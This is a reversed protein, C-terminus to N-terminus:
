RAFGNIRDRSGAIDASWDKDSDVVTPKLLIVLERKETHKSTQGFISKPLGPLGSDDNVEAQRMLGGIAVIQGDRARVISDTESVSSSALPLNFINSVGNSTGLDVTKNVTTVTSVSPHVHLIIENNEDIVPTVDLAIGSFFPQVKVTPSTGAIATTAQTGGTVETVFFEDTGVKLVAKQNNLTAIRPSSLVHVNGQTELFNLLAAFNSTQFALGFLSGAVASSPLLSTATPLLSAGPTSTLATNALTSAVAGGPSLTSGPSGIGATVHSNPGNKFVGWNVGSQFSDNLQVEVIKAELIVQRDISIQSAKLYAAVNKLEDPMARIVIVGSMPSIVVSRGKEDGVIAKLAASLEGWFDTSTTMTVKSSDRNSNTGTAATAPMGQTVASDAVSGSAVRLSSRGDRQGTLYSVQFIRTQLTLPQIYIRTGDVKYDYGYMDRIAELADFVTVDKLNLSINGSVDPHVLVSYRTGSVIAMFVQKAPTNNVALDFKTELPKSDLQAPPLALPPLLAQDVAEPKAAEHSKVAADMEQNIKQAALNKTNGGTACASLLLVALMVSVRKM